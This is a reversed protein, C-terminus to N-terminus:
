PFNNYIDKRHMITIFVITNDDILDCGVRYDGIRIRYFNEHGVMKSISSISLINDAQEIKDIIKLLRKKIQNNKLKDLDKSFSSDFLIDM